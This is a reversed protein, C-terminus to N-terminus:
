SNSLQGKKKHSSPPPTHSSEPSKSRHGGTTDKDRDRKDMEANEKRIEDILRSPSVNRRGEEREVYLEIPMGEHFFSLPPPRWISGDKFM